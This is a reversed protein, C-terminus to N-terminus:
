DILVSNNRTFPIIDSPKKEDQLNTTAMITSFISYRNMLSCRVNWTYDPEVWVCVYITDTRGVNISRQFPMMKIQNMVPVYITPDNQGQNEM